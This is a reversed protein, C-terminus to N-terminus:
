FRYVRLMPYFGQPSPIRPAVITPWRELPLELELKGEGLADYLDQTAGFMHRAERAESVVIALDGGVRRYADLAPRPSQGRDPFSMFLIRDGHAAVSEMDGQRLGAFWREPLIERDYAIVDVGATSLQEEAYGLGAFISVLGRRERQSLTKITEIAHPTLNGLGFSSWHQAFQAVELYERGEVLARRSAEAPDVKAARPAASEAVGTRTPMSLGDSVDPTPSGSDPVRKHEMGIITPGPIVKTM